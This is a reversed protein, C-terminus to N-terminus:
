APTADSDSTGEQPPQSRQWQDLIQRALASATMNHAAALDSIRRALEPEVRVSLLSTKRVPPRIDFRVPVLPFAEADVEQGHEAWWDFAEQDSTFEPIETIKPRDQVRKAVTM